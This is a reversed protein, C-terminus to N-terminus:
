SENFRRIIWVNKQKNENHKTLDAPICGHSTEDYNKSHKEQINWTNKNLNIQSKIIKKIKNLKNYM